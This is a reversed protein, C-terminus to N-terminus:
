TTDPPWPSVRQRHFRRAAAPGANKVFAETLPHTDIYYAASQGWQQTDPVVYNLHSRVIERPERSTWYDVESTSGMGRNAEIKPLEPAEGQSTDPRIAAVLNEICWGYYPSLFV